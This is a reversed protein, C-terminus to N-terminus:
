NRRHPWWRRCEGPVPVLEELHHMGYATRVADGVQSRPDPMGPFCVNKPTQVLDLCEQTFPPKEFDKM